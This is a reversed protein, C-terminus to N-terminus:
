GKLFCTCCAGRPSHDFVALDPAIVQRINKRGMVMDFLRDQSLYGFRFLIEAYNMPDPLKKVKPHWVPAHLKNYSGCRPMFSTIHGLGGGREWCYAVKAM